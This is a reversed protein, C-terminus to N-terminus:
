TFRLVGTSGGFVVVRFFFAVEGFVQKAEDFARLAFKEFFLHLVNEFGLDAFFEILDGLNGDIREESLHLLSHRLLVGALLVFFFEDRCEGRVSLTALLARPRCQHAAGAREM